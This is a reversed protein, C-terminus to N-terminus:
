RRRRRSGIGFRRWIAAALPISLTAAISVWKQFRDGDAWHKHQEILERQSALMATRWQREETMADLTDDGLSGLLRPM